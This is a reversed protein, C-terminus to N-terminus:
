RKIVKKTKSQKEDRLYFYYAGNAYRTIDIWFEKADLKMSHISHGKSDLIDLTSGILNEHLLSVKYKGNSPNPSVAFDFETVKFNTADSPAIKAPRAHGGGGPDPESGDDVDPKGCYFERQIRNGSADYTFKIYCVNQAEMFLPFLLITLITLYKKM